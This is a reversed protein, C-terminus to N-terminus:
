LAKGSLLDGTLLVLNCAPDFGEYIRIPGHLWPVMIICTRAVTDSMRSPRARTAKLLHEAIANGPGDRGPGLSGTMLM